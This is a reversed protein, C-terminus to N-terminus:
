ITMFGTAFLALIIGLATVLSGVTTGIQLMDEGFM